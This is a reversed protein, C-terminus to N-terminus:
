SFSWQLFDPPYNCSEKLQILGNISVLSFDSCSRFLRSGLSLWTLITLILGLKTILASLAKSSTITEIQMLNTNKYLKRKSTKNSLIRVTVTNRHETKSMEPCTTAHWFPHHERRLCQYTCWTPPQTQSKCFKNVSSYVMFKHKLHLVMVMCGVSPWGCGCCCGSAVRFVNTQEEEKSKMTM